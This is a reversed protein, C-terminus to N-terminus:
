VVWAISQGGNGEIAYCNPEPSGSVSIISAQDQCETDTYIKWGLWEGSLTMSIFHPIDAYCTPGTPSGYEYALGSCFSDPFVLISSAQRETLNSVRTLIMLLGIRFLAYKYGYLPTGKVVLLLSAFALGSFRM